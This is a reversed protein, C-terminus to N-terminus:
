RAGFRWTRHPGRPFDRPVTADTIEEAVLSSELSADLEFARAHTSFFLAGGPALRRMADRILAPHDRVVDLEARMGKSRSYSPPALLIARYKERPPGSLWQVVDARVFEHGRPEIENREFNARGWELYPASLDVSTVRAGRAGAYVSATCTYAFLNLLTEGAAADAVIKRLRRHDLFLGTDLYDNLNVEFLHAGERVVSRVGEDARKEYQGPRAAGESRHRVRVRVHLADDETGLVEKVVLMADQLRADALKADVHHPRRHEQLVVADGYRDISVNYEPIDADYVRWADLRQGKAWGRLRRDNKALRNRFMAAEPRAKRWGPSADDSKAARIAYSAFVCELPGNNLEIKSDSRLGVRGLLDRDSALVHARWGGFRHKLVDGIQPYLRLLDGRTGLREGYPPNVVLHGSETPARADALEGVELTVGRAVGAAALSERALAIAEPDRDRGYIALPRDSAATARERAETLVRSHAGRDHGRWTGLPRELGPARDRAICAGEVLLTGSGCMPDLLTADPTWGSLHLMAAALTERLPAPAGRPRYGRRHLAGGLDISLTCPHAWHLHIRVNPDRADVNPRAGLRERLVDVIADKTRQALYRTHDDRGRAAAVEVIFTDDEGLHEWWAIKAAHEYLADADEAEFGAIPVLVRSAVRSWMLARYASELDGLVTVAGVGVQPALGLAVLESELAPETGRACTLTFDSTM